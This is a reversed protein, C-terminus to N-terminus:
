LAVAAFYGSSQLEIGRIIPIEIRFITLFDPLSHHKGLQQPWACQNSTLIKDHGQWSSPNTWFHAVLVGIERWRLMSIECLSPHSLSKMFLVGPYVLMCTSVGHNGYSLSRCITPKGFSLAPVLQEDFARRFAWALQNVQQHFTQFTSPFWPTKRALCSSHTCIPALNHSQSGTDVFM